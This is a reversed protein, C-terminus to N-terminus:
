IKKTSTISCDFFGNDVVRDCNYKLTKVNKCMAIITSNIQEQHKSIYNGDISKYKRINNLQEYNNSLIIIMQNNM